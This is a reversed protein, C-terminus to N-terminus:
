WSGDRFSEDSCFISVRARCWNLFTSTALSPGNCSSQSTGKEKEKQKGQQDANLMTCPGQPPFLAVDNRSETINRKRWLM